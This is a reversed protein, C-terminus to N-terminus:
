CGKGKGHIQIEDGADRWQLEEWGHGAWPVSIKKALKADCAYSDIAQIDFASVVSLM